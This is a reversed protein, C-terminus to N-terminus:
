EDAGPIFYEDKHSTDTCPNAKAADFEAKQESTGYYEVTALVEEGEVDYINFEAIKVDTELKNHAQRLDHTRMECGINEFYETKKVYGDVEGGFPILDPLLEDNQECLHYHGCIGYTEGHSNEKFAYYEEDSIEPPYSYKSLDIDPVPVANENFAIEDVVLYDTLEGNTYYTYYLMCGTEKDIYMTADIGDKFAIEVCDRGIFEVDGVIDWKDFDWLFETGVITWHAQLCATGLHTNIGNSYEEFPNPNEQDGIGHETELEKMFARMAEYDVPNGTRGHSVSSNDSYVESMIMDDDDLWVCKEGDSYIAMHGFFAGKSVYNDEEGVVPEGKLIDEFNNEYNVRSYYAYCKGNTLDLQLDTVGCVGDKYDQRDVVKGSVQDYFYVSNIIKAYIGEKTTMDYSNTDVYKEQIDPTEPSEEASSEIQSSEDINRMNKFVAAGGGGVAVIVALAAAMAGMRRFVSPKKYREVHNVSIEFESEAESKHTYAKEAFKEALNRNIESDVKPVVQLSDKILKDVKRM